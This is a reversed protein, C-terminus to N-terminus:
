LYRKQNLVTEVARPIHRIIEDIGTAPTPSAVHVM